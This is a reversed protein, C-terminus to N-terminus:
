GLGQKMKDTLWCSRTLKEAKISVGRLPLDNEMGGVIDLTLHSGCHGTFYEIKTPSSNRRSLGKSRSFLCLVM